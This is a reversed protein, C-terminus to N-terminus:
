CVSFSIPSCCSGGTWTVPVLLSNLGAPFIDQRDSPSSQCDTAIMLEVLNTISCVVLLCSRWSHLWEGIVALYTSYALSSYVVRLTRFSHQINIPTYRTCSHTGLPRQQWWPDVSCGWCRSTATTMMSRSLLRLSLFQCFAWGFWMWPLVWMVENM